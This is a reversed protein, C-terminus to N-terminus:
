RRKLSRAGKKPQEEEEEEEEEEEDVEVEEEEDDEDEYTVAVAAKKGAKAVPKAAAKPVPKAPKEPKVDEADDSDVPTETDEETKKKKGKKSPAKPPMVLSLYERVDNFFGESLSYTSDDEETQETQQLYQQNGMELMRIAAEVVNHNIQKKSVWMFQAITYGVLRVYELLYKSAFNALAHKNKDFIDNKVWTSFKEALKDESCPLLGNLREVTTIIARSVQSKNQEKLSKDNYVHKVLDEKTKIKSGDSLNDLEDVLKSTLYALYKKGSLTIQAINKKPKPAAAKESAGDEVMDTEDNHDEETAPTEVPEQVKTGRKVIRPKASPKVSGKTTPKTRERAANPELSLKYEHAPFPNYGNSASSEVKQLHEITELLSTIVTKGLSDCFPSEVFMWYFSVLGKGAAEECAAKNREKEATRKALAEKNSEKKKAPAKKKSAESKSSSRSKTPVKEVEVVDTENDIINDNQSSM